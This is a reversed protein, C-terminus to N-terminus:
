NKECHFAWEIEGKHCALAVAIALAFPCLIFFGSDFFAGQRLQRCGSRMVSALPPVAQIPHQPVHVSSLAPLNARGARRRRGVTAWPIRASAIPNAPLGGYDVYERRNRYAKAGAMLAVTPLVYLRDELYAEYNYADQKANLTQAGDHFLYLPWIDYTGGALDIRTPASSDIRM